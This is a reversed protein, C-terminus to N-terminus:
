PKAAPRRMARLPGLLPEWEERAIYRTGLLVAIWAASAVVGAVLGGGPLELLALGAVVAAAPLARRVLRGGHVAVVQRHVVFMVWVVMVADCVVLAIGAGLAGHPPILIVCLVVNLVLGAVIAPIRRGERRAALLAYWALYNFFNLVVSAALVLMVDGSEAYADGFIFTILDTGGLGLVLAIPVSGLVSLRLLLDFSRQADERDLALQRTLLPYFATAVAGPVIFTLEVITLALNYVAVAREGDLKSLLLLGLRAYIIGISAVIAVPAAERLFPLIQRLTGDFAPRAGLHRDALVFAVIAGVAFALGSSAVLGAAGLGAVLAVVGGALTVTSQVAVCIAFLKFVRRAQFAGSLAALAGQAVILLTGIALLVLVTGRYGLLLGLPVLLLGAVIATAAEASLAVGLIRDTRQEDLTIQRTALASIGSEAVIGVVAIIAMALGLLTTTYASM